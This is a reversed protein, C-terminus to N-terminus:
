TADRIILAEPFHLTFRAGLGDDRNSADITVGMAEAFAKVIALGLGTGSASRDSGEVRRFTDFIEREHGPPLGPGTDIVSLTLEGMHREGRITVPTAPGGYRGANDLLNLLCHHLLQPDARVLPLNPPVELNIPHGELAHRADQVASSVTDTLDVPEVHLPLAGAEVRAMDLLNAVFRNLRKAEADISDVLELRYVRRLEAAAALISTLPTRLDHSVSSLLAARLRDRERITDLERMEAELRLRELTLAAQDLQSVLLPLQEPRIPDGAQDGGFGVVALVREATKIPQFLWESATLTGSGVGAPQGTDWVWQAAALDIPGLSIEADSAAQVTLGAETRQLLVTRVAFMRSLEAAITRLLQEQGKLVTLTRLFGALEANTRASSAAVDARSRVLSTLQSTVAAVGLLVFVSVLNEPNSITLTYIPPLFFFNYALSSALGAYLGTRLGFLSAAAMVPLLYLLAVNGLNLIHFLITALGTVAAVM